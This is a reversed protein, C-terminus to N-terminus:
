FTPNSNPIPDRLELTEKTGKPKAALNQRGQETFGLFFKNKNRTPLLALLNCM